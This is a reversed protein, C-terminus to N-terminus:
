TPGALKETEYWRAREEDESYEPIRVYNERHPYVSERVSLHVAIVVKGGPLGVGSM